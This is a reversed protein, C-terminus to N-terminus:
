FSFVISEIIAYACHGLTSLEPTLEQSLGNLLSSDMELEMLYALSMFSFLFVMLLFISQKTRNKITNRM